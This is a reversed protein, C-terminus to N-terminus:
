LRGSDPCLTTQSPEPCTPRQVRLVPTGSTRDSARRPRCARHTSSELTRSPRRVARARSALRRGGLRHRPQANWSRSCHGLHRRSVRRSAARGLVSRKADVVPAAVPSGATPATPLRARSATPGVAFAEDSWGLISAGSVVSAPATPDRASRRSSIRDATSRTMLTASGDPGLGQDAHGSRGALAKVAGVAVDAPVAAAAWAYDTVSGPRALGLVALMGGPRVLDALRDLGRELPLHHMSAIATVADYGGVTLPWRLVDGAMWRVNDLHRSRARAAAIMEASIDIADVRRARAALRLAFSGNGCGVDLVRDPALPLVSLVYRHYHGNHDWLTVEPREPLRM